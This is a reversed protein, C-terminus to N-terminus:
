RGSLFGFFNANPNQASQNYYRAYADDRVRNMLGANNRLYPNAGARQSNTYMDWAKNPDNNISAALAQQTPDNIQGAQNRSLLSNVLAVYGPGQDFSAQRGLAGGLGMLVDNPGAPLGQMTRFDAFRQATPEIRSGIYNAFPNGSDNQFGMARQYNRAAMDGAPGAEGFGFYNAIEDQTMPNFLPASGPRGVPNFLQELGRLMVM